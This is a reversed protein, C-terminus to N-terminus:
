QRGPGHPKAAPAEEHKEGPAPVPAAEPATSPQGSPTTIV